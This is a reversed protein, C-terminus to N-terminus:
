YPLPPTGFLAYSVRWCRACARLRPSACCSSFLSADLPGMIPRSLSLASRALSAALFPAAEGEPAGAISAAAPPLLLWLVAADGLLLGLSGNIAVRRTSSTYRKQMHKQAPQRSNYM